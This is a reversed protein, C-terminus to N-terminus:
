KRKQAESCQQQLTKFQTAGGDHFDECHREWAREAENERCDACVHEGYEDEPNTTPDDCRVCRAMFPFTDTAM